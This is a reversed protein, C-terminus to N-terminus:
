EHMFREGEDVRPGGEYYPAVLSPKGARVRVKSWPELVYEYVVFDVLVAAPAAAWAAYPLVAVVVAADLMRRAITVLFHLRRIPDTFCEV